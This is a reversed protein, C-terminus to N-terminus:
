RDPAGPRRVEVPVRQLKNSTLSLQVLKTARGVSYPVEQLQNGDLILVQRRFRLHGDRRVGAVPPDVPQLGDLVASWSDPHLSQVISQGSPRAALMSRLAPLPAPPTHAKKVSLNVSPM